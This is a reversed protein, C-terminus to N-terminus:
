SQTLQQVLWLAGERFVKTDTGHGLHGIPPSLILEVQPSRIQHSFAEEVLKQCFSFAHETGVRQDRNSIYIRISKEYLKDSLHHVDYSSVGPISKFTDTYSTRTLPAFQLLYKIEPERAALHSVIFGGRSLGMLGVKNKTLTQKKELFTLCDQVKQIFTELPKKGDRMEEAMVQLSSDPSLDLDHCPLTLSFVRIPYSSLFAAPQNYPNKCLSENGSLAFYFVAPLTGSDLDPGIYSFQTGQDTVSEKCTISETM